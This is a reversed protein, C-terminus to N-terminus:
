RGLELEHQYQKFSLLLGSAVEAATQILVRLRPDTTCRVADRLEVVLERTQEALRQIQLDEETRTPLAVM